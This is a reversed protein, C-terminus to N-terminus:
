QEAIPHFTLKSQKLKDWFSLPKAESSSAAVVIARRLDKSLHHRPLNVVLKMRKAIAPRVGAPAAPAVLTTEKSAAPVVGDNVARLPPTEFSNASLTAVPEAAGCVHTVTSGDAANMVLTTCILASALFM